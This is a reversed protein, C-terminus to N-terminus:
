ESMGTGLSILRINKHKKFYKAYLYAYLSPNNCIVGGDVLYETVDFKDTYNMPDFYIPASSSSAVAKWLAV